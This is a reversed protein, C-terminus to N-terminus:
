ADADSASAQLAIIREGLCIVCLDFIAMHRGGVLREVCVDGSGRCNVCWQFGFREGSEGRAEVAFFMRRRIETKTTQNSTM